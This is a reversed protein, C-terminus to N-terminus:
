QKTDELELTWNEMDMRGSPLVWESNAQDLRADGFRVVAGSDRTGLRKALAALLVVILRHGFGAAAPCTHPGTGFPIYAHRMDATLTRKKGTLFRTPRYLLADPGWIDLNRHCKEVDAAEVDFGVSTEDRLGDIRTARPVRRYLRRTPPYLRLGEKAFCLARSLEENKEFKSHLCVPVSDAVVQLQSVTEQDARFGASIYTLLVVRWVTEYGPMILNLPNEEPVLPDRDPLMRRLAAFLQEQDEASIPAKPDKSHHWLSNIAETAIFADGFDVKETDTDFLVHLMSVFCYVRLLPALTLLRGSPELHHISKELVTTTVRFFDDWKDGNKSIIDRASQVFKYHVDPLITTFSNKVNFVELLRTNPLTRSQLRFVIDTDGIISFDAISRHQQVHQRASLRPIRRRRQTFTVYSVVLIVAVAFLSIYSLYSTFFSRERSYTFLPTDM